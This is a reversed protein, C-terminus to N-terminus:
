NRRYLSSDLRQVRHASIDDDEMNVYCWTCGILLTLYFLIKMKDILTVQCPFLGRNNISAAATYLMIKDDVDRRWHVSRSEALTETEIKVFLLDNRDIRELSNDDENDTNSFLEIELYWSNLQFKLSTTSSEEFRRFDLEDVSTDTLDINLLEVNKVVSDSCDLIFTPAEERKWESAKKIALVSNSRIVHKKFDIRLRIFYQEVSYQKINSSLPLDDDM